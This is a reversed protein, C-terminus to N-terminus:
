DDQSSVSQNLNKSFPGQLLFFFLDKKPEFGIPWSNWCIEPKKLFLSLILIAKPRQDHGPKSSNEFM